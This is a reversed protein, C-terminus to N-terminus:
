LVPMKNLNHEAGGTNMGKVDLVLGPFTISTILGKMQAAWTQIPQRTETWLVVKNGPEVNGM